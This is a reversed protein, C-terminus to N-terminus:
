RAVGEATLDESPTLLRPGASDVEFLDSGRNVGLLLRGPGSPRAALRGDVEGVDADSLVAVGVGSACLMTVLRRLARTDPLSAAFAASDWDLILGEVRSAVTVPM